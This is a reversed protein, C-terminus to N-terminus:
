STSGPPPMADPAAMAATVSTGMATAATVGTVSTRTLSANDLGVAQQYWGQVLALHRNEQELAQSFARIMESQEHEGALAILTEWGANDALEATLIAHLSQALSTRPDSLVQVLGMSEVGAMDASPTQATPDGGMWDIAEKVMLMHRAEDARIAAVQEMTISPQGDKLADLKTLLADYLRTGTREFALREALKDLLVQPSDGKLMNMGMSVVGKMTGPVPVSGIGESEAIYAERMAVVATENGPTGRQTIKDDDLMDKTAFPSMQIGTKNMGVHERQQAM